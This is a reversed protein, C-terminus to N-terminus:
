APLLGPPPVPGAFREAERAFVSAFFSANADRRGVPDVGEYFYVRKGRAAGWRAVQPKLARAHLATTEYPIHLDRVSRLLAADRTLLKILAIYLQNLREEVSLAQGYIVLSKAIEIRLISPAFRFQRHDAHGRALDEIATSSLNLFRLDPLDYELLHQIPLYDSSFSLSRLLPFTRLSYFSTWLLACNWIELTRLNPLAAPDLLGRYIPISNSFSVNNISLHELRDMSFTPEDTSPWPAPFSARRVHLRRLNPFSNFDSLGMNMHVLSLSDLWECRGVLGCIEESKWVMPEYCSDIVLLRATQRAPTNNEPSFKACLRPDSRKSVWLEEHLLRRATATWSSHVRMCASYFEIRAVHAERADLADSDWSELVHFIIELPLPVPRPRRLPPPLTRRMWGWLEVTAIALLRYVYVPFCLAMVFLELYAMQLRYLMPQTDPSKFTVLM